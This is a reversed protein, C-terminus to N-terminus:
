RANPTSADLVDIWGEEIANRLPVTRVCFDTRYDIPELEPAGGDYRVLMFLMQEGQEFYSGLCSCGDESYVLTEGSVAGSWVHDVAVRAVKEGCRSGDRHVSCIRFASSGGERYRVSLIEGSFIADARAIDAELPGQSCSTAAADSAAFLLLTAAVIPRLKKPTM